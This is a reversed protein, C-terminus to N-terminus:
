VHCMRNLFDEISEGEKQSISNGVKIDEEGKKIAAMMAPSKM